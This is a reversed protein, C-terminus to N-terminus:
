HQLMCTVDASARVQLRSALSIEAKHQEDVIRVVKLLVSAQFPQFHWEDKCISNFESGFSMGALPAVATSSQAEADLIRFLASALNNVHISKLGESDNFGLSQLKNVLDDLRKAPTHYLGAIGTLEEEDVELKRCCEIVRKLTKTALVKHLQVFGPLPAEDSCSM